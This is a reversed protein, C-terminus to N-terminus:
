QTTRADSVSAIRYDKKKEKGNDPILLMMRDGKKNIAGQVTSGVPVVNCNRLGSPLHLGAEFQEVVYLQQGDTVHIWCGGTGQSGSGGVMVVKLPKLEPKEGAFAFSAMALIVLLARKM